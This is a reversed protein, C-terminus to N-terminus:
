TLKRRKIHLAEKYLLLNWNKSSDIVKTNSLVLDTLQTNSQSTLFAKDYCSDLHKYIASEKDKYAHEKMRELLTRDTKGFYLLQQM